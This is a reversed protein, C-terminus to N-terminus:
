ITLIFPYSISGSNYMTILNNLKAYQSSISTPVNAPITTMTTPMNAPMAPIAPMTPMVAVMAAPMNSNINSISSNISSNINSANATISSANATINSANATISSMNSNINSINSNNINSNTNNLDIVNGTVTSNSISTIIPYLKNTNAINFQKFIDLNSIDVWKLVNFGGNNPLMKIFVISNIVNKKVISAAALSYVNESSWNNNISIGQIHTLLVNSEKINGKNMNPYTIQMWNSFEFSATQINYSCNVIFGAAVLKVYGNQGKSNIYTGIQKFEYNINTTFGGVIVYSSGNYWMGYATTTISGPYKIEISANTTTNYLYAKVLGTIITFITKKKNTNYILMGNMISHGFTYYSSKLTTIKYFCAPNNNTLDAITGIFYFGVNGKTGNLTYCGVFSYLQTSQNYNPGYLSTTAINTIPFNLYYYTTVGGSLICVVGSSTVLTGMVGAGTSTTGCIIQIGNITKIGQWFAINSPAIQYSSIVALKYNLTPPSSPTLASFSIACTIVLFVIIICFIIIFAIYLAELNIKPPMKQAMKKSM